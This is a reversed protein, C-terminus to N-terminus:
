ETTSLEITGLDTPLGEVVVVLHESKEPDVYREKLKDPGGYQGNMLNYEGWFFTLQYEGPPAGDGAEYTGIEFRGENDTFDSSSPIAGDKGDIPHCKVALNAAPTGDVFVQGKIPSVNVRPGDPMQEGCGAAMTLIGLSVLFYGREM